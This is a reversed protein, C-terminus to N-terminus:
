ICLYDPFFRRTSFSKLHIRFVDKLIAAAHATVNHIIERLFPNRLQYVSEVGPNTAVFSQAGDESPAIPSSHSGCRVLIRAKQDVAM